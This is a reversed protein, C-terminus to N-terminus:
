VGQYPNVLRQESYGANAPNFPGTYRSAAASRRQEMFSDVGGGNSVAKCGTKEGLLIPDFAGNTLIMPASKM